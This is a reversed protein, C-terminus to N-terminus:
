LREVICFENGEPDQLVAWRSTERHRALEVAGLAVARTVDEDLAETHLDLHFRNKARKKEPVALFMLPVMDGNPPVVRIEGPDPGPETAWGLLDAWWAAIREPDRADFTLQGVRM